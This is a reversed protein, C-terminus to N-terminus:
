DFACGETFCHPESPWAGGGYPHYGRRGIYARNDDEVITVQKVGLYNGAGSLGSYVRLTMTQNGKNEYDEVGKVSIKVVKADGYKIGIGNVGQNTNNIFNGESKSLIIVRNDASWFSINANTM